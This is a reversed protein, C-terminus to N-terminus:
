TESESVGGDRCRSSCIRTPTRSARLPRSTSARVLSSKRGKAKAVRQEILEATKQEALEASEKHLPRLDAVGEPRWGATQEYIDRLASADANFLWGEFAVGIARAFPVSRARRAWRRM